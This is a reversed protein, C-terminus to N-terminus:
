APRRTTGRDRDWSLSRDREMLGGDEERDSDYDFLLSPDNEPRPIGGTESSDDDVSDVNIGGTLTCLPALGSTIEMWYNRLQEEDLVLEEGQADVAPGAQQDSREVEASWGDGEEVVEEVVGAQLTAESELVGPLSRRLQWTAKMAGYIEVVMESVILATELIKKAQSGDRELARWRKQDGRLDGTDGMRSSLLEKVIVLKQPADQVKVLHGHIERWMRDAERCLARAAGLADLGLSSTDSINDEQPDTVVLACLVTMCKELLGTVALQEDLRLSLFHSLKRLLLDMILVRSGNSVGSVPETDGSESGVGISGRRGDARVQGYIRLLISRSACDYYQKSMASLRDPNIMPRSSKSSGSSCLTAMRKDLASCAKELKEDLSTTSVQPATGSEEVSSVSDKVVSESPSPESSVAAEVNTKIQGSDPGREGLVMIQANDMSASGVLVSLLQLTSVSVSKSVSGARAVFVALLDRDSCIFESLTELLLSSPGSRIEQPSGAQGGRGSPYVLSCGGGSSISLEAFARRLLAQTNLVMTEVNTLLSPKLCSQLFASRFLAILHTRLPPSTRHGSTQGSHSFPENNTEYGHSRASSASPGMQRRRGDETDETDADGCVLCIADCFKLVKIFSDHPATPVLSSSRSAASSSSTSADLPSASVNSHPVTRQGSASSLSTPAPSLGPSKSSLSSAEVAQTFKRVLETVINRILGTENLVFDELRRNRMGLAMLMAEKAVPGVRQKGMLPILATLVDLQPRIKVSEGHHSSDDNTITTTESSTPSSKTENAGSSTDVDSGGSQIHKGSYRKQPSTGGSLRHDFSFFFDLLNPNEAIKRWVVAILGSLAM